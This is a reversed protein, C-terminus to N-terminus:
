LGAGVGVLDEPDVLFDDFMDDPLSGLAAEAALEEPSMQVSTGSLQQSAAQPPRHQQQAPSQSHQPLPPPASAPLPPLHVSRVGHQQQTHHPVTAPQQQQQQPLPPPPQAPLPPQAAEPTGWVHASPQHPAPYQQQPLGGQQQPGRAQVASAAPAQRAPATSGGPTTVGASSPPAVLTASSPRYPLPLSAAPATSPAALALDAAATAAELHAVWDTRPPANNAAQAPAFPQYAQQRQQQQQQPQQQQQQQQPPRQQPVWAGTSVPPPHLGSAPPPAAAQWARTPQQPHQQQSLRGPYPASAPRMSPSPSPIQPM